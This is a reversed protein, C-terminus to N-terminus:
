PSPVHGFTRRLTALNETMKQQYYDLPAGEPGGAVPDLEVEPIGAERAITRAFKPPYQPETFIALVAKTRALKVLELMEAASPEQGPDEQILAVVELGADRALIDFVSHQAIIRNSKLTKGLLSFEDGLRRLVLAYASGNNTYREGHVPDAEALGAAINEVVRAAIRPSAFLHPNPGGSGHRHEGFHLRGAHGHHDHRGDARVGGRETSETSSARPSDPLYGEAEAIGRSSDIVRISPNAERLSGELFQEMGLGNAVFIHARAIKEMDQPTLVYDHPCGFGPPLMLDVEVGDIGATVNRTFLYIPFTGALIRLPDAASSVNGPHVLLIFALILPAARGGSIRKAAFRNM